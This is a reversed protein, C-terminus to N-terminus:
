AAFYVVTGQCNFSGSADVTVLTGGTGSFSTVSVNAGVQWVGTNSAAAICLGSGYNNFGSSWSTVPLSIQLNGAATSGFTGSCVFSAIVLPGIQIYRGLQNTYSQTGATTSGRATSTYSAATVISPVSSSNTSLIGSAATALAAMVNASSAYLLTNVANTNPYTSTSFVPTVGIGAGQLLTGTAATEVNISNNTAM